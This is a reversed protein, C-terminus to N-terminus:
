RKMKGPDPTIESRYPYEKGEERDLIPSLVYNHGPSDLGPIVEIGVLPGRVVYNLYGHYINPPSQTYVLIRDNIPQKSAVKWVNNEKTCYILEDWVYSNIKHYKVGKRIMTLTIEEVLNCIVYAKQANGGMLWVKREQAVDLLNINTNNFWNEIRPFIARYSVMKEHDVYDKSFIPGPKIISLDKKTYASSYARSFRNLLDRLENGDTETLKSSENDLFSPDVHQGVVSYYNAYNCIIMLDYVGEVLSGIRYSGDERNVPAMGGHDSGRRRTIVVDGSEPPEIVGSISGTKEGQPPTFYLLDAYIRLPQSFSLFLVCFLFVFRLRRFMYRDRRKSKLDGDDM